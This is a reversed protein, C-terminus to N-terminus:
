AYHVEGENALSKGIWENFQFSLYNSPLPFPKAEVIHRFHSDRGYLGLGFRKFERVTADQPHVSNTLAYSHSAFRTNLHTQEIVKNIDNLKAEVAILKTLSFVNRLDRVRWSRGRYSILKADMLKELSTLTQREPFGLTSIIKAGIADETTSLYSLLKLDFIDLAERKESWNDTISPLYSAFVVDPYGSDIRPEIFVALQTKKNNRIFTNCYYEIFQGVLEYENGLTTPRIYLGIDPRSHKIIMVQSM